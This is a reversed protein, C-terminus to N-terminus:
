IKPFLRRPATRSHRDPIGYAPRRHLSRRRCNDMARPFPCSCDCKMSVDSGARRPRHFGPAAAGRRCATPNPCRALCVRAGRTEVFSGDAREPPWKVATEDGETTYIRKVNKGTEVRKTQGFFAALEYFEKQKWDDFPHDHCEACGLTSGLWNAGLARVRDAGYKAFYEKPQLGGEASTRGMRNYASAVKQETTASGNCLFRDSAEERQV